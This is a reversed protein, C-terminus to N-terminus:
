VDLGLLEKEQNENGKEEDDPNETATLKMILRQEIRDGGIGSM